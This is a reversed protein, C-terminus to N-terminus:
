KGDAHISQLWLRAGTLGTCPYPLSTAPSTSILSPYHPASPAEPRTDPMIVPIRLGEARRRGGLRPASLALTWSNAGAGQAGSTGALGHLEDAVSAAQIRQRSRNEKKDLEVKGEFM